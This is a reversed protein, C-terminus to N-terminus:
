RRDLVRHERQHERADRPQPSARVPDEAARRGDARRRRDRARRRHRRRGDRHRRRRGGAGARRQRRRGGDRRRRLPAAAGRGGDVKDEPLLAARYEDVGLSEALARAAADHDGTLLVVHEVGQSRLLRRGRPRGRAARRRRRHGRGDRRRARGDGRHLREGGASSGRRAAADSCLGREEFLRHNGVVCPAGRLWPRRRRPGAAGPLRRRAALALRQERAREVIARGIPHESRTELSRRSACCGRARRRRRAAAVDVVRLEGRTLTGTKDFAVCRVRGAARAARRGQDARGEAGGGRAGVRDLGADLHRARVPVLDGAARALPLVLREVVAGPWSRRRRDRGARRARARGAHLRARLSRRVDPEARAAGARARRPSHHARADLRAAPAHGVVDLAGRGNITGAFVRRGPRKEVPLSEGTVPAQNVHSDGRPSAATSRFRRARGCSWSTASACRTSRRPAARTGDRRVLAEAPALDMLARIAGRAREM